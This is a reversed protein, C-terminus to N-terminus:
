LEWRYNLMQIIHWFRENEIFKFPIEDILIIQALTIFTQEQNSEVLKM